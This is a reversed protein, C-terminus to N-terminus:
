WAMVLFLVPPGTIEMGIKSQASPNDTRNLFAIAFWLISPIIVLWCPTHMKWRKNALSLRKNQRAITSSHWFKSLSNSFYSAADPWAMLLYFVYIKKLLVVLCSTLFAMWCISPALTIVSQSFYRLKGMAHPLYRLSSWSFIDLRTIPRFSFNMKLAPCFTRILMTTCAIGVYEILKNLSGFDIQSLM